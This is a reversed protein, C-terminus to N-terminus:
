SMEDYFSIKYGAQVNLFRQDENDSTNWRIIDVSAVFWRWIKADWKKKWIDVLIFVLSSL